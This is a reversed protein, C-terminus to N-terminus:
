RLSPEKSTMEPFGNIQKRELHALMKSAYEFHWTNQDKSMNYAVVAGQM